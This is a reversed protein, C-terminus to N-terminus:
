QRQLQMMVVTSGAFVVGTSGFATLRVMLPLTTEARLPSKIMAAASLDFSKM